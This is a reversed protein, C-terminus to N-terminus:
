IIVVFFLEILQLRILTGLIEANAGRNLIINVAFIGVSVYGSCEFSRRRGSRAQTIAISDDFNVAYLHGALRRKFHTVLNTTWSVGGDPQRQFTRSILSDLFDIDNTIGHRLRRYGVSVHQ